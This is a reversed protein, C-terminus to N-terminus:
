LSVASDEAFRAWLQAVQHESAMETDAGSRAIVTASSRVFRERDITSLRLFDDADVGLLFGLYAIKEFVGTFPDLESARLQEITAVPLRVTQALCVVDHEDEGLVADVFHGLGDFSRLSRRSRVAVARARMEGIVTAQARIDRFREINMPDQM